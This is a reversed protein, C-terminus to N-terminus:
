SLTVSLWSTGNFLYLKSTDTAFYAHYHSNVGPETPKDAELGFKIAYLNPALSRQEIIGPSFQSRHLQAFGVEEVPKELNNKYDVSQAQITM